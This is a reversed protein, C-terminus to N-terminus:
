LNLVQKLNFHRYNNLNLLTNQGSLQTPPMGLTIRYNIHVHIYQMMAKYRNNGNQQSLYEYMWEM